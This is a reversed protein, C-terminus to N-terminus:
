VETGTRELIHSKIISAGISGCDLNGSGAILADPHTSIGNTKAAVGGKPPNRRKSSCKYCLCTICYTILTTILLTVICVVVLCMIFFLRTM